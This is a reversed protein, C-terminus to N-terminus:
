RGEDFWPISFFIGTNDTFLGLAENTIWYKEPIYCEGNIKEFFELWVMADEKVERNLRVSYYPKGNKVSAILDYLRRIFTRSSSIATSCFVMKRTVSVFEKLAIRKKSIISLLMLKLRELKDQPIRVVMLFTDIEMGLFMIQTTPGITKDEALPVGLEKCVEVFTEMLKACNQSFSEGAFFFDDLYHDLTELVSKSAVVWHVFTAFKEFLSCYISCGMPLCKDVYYKGGFMIGLLDFDAPNIILLRFAQCIDMKACLAKQGLASIM